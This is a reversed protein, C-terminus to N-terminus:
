LYMIKGGFLICKSNMEKLAEKEKSSSLLYIVEIDSLKLVM